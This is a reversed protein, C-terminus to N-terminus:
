VTRRYRAFGLWVLGSAFLALSAPEPIPDSGAMAIAGSPAPIPDPSQNPWNSSVPTNTVNPTCNSVTGACGQSLPQSDTTRQVITIEMGQSYIDGTSMRMGQSYTEGVWPGSEVMTGQSFVDNTTARMGQSVIETTVADQKQQSEGYTGLPDKIDAFAPCALAAVCLVGGFAASHFLVPTM